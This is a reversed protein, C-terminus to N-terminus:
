PPRGSRRREVGGDPDGVRMSSQKTAAWCPLTAIRSAMVDVDQEARDVQEALGGQDGLILEVFPRRGM